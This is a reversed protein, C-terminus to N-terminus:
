YGLIVILVIIVIFVIIIDVVVVVIIYHIVIFVLITLDHHRDQEGGQHNEIDGKAAIVAFSFRPVADRVFVATMAITINTPSTSPLESQVIM